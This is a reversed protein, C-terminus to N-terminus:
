AAHPRAQDRDAGALRRARDGAPRHARRPHHTIKQRGILMWESSLIRPERVTMAEFQQESALKSRAWLAPQDGVRWIAHQIPMSAPM